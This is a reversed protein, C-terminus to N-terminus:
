SPVKVLLIEWAFENNKCYSVHRNILFYVKTEVYCNMDLYEEVVLKLKSFRERDDTLNSSLVDVSFCTYM